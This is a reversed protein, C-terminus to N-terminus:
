HVRVWDLDDTGGDVHPMPRYAAEFAQSETATPGRRNPECACGCALFAPALAVVATVFRVLKKSAACVM